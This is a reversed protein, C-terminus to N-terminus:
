KAVGSFALSVSKRPRGPRRPAAQAPVTNEDTTATATATATATSSSNGSNLGNVWALVDAVRWRVVRGNIRIARPFDPPAKKRGAGWHAVTVPSYNLLAGVYAADALVPVPANASENISTNTPHEVAFKLL